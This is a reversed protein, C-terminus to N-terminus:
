FSKTMIPHYINHDNWGNTGYFGKIFSPGMRNIYPCNYLEPDFQPTFGTPEGIFVKKLKEKLSIKKNQTSEDELDNFTPPQIEPTQMEPIKIPAFEQSYVPNSVFLVVFIIKLFLINYKLM